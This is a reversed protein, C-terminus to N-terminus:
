YRKSPDLKESWLQALMKLDDTFQEQTQEKKREIRELIEFSFVKIGFADRDKKLRYDFCSDSLSMFEFANQKAQINTAYDLLYMGNRTNTIRYIGGIIKRQKYETILTKRRDMATQFGPLHPTIFIVSLSHIGVTRCTM